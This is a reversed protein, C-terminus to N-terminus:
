IHVPHAGGAALSSERSVPHRLGFEDPQTWHVPSRWLCTAIPVQPMWSTGTPDMLVALCGPEIGILQGSFGTVIM